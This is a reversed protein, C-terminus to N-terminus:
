AEFDGSPPRPVQDKLRHDIRVLRWLLNIANLTSVPTRPTPCPPSSALGGGGGGLICIGSGFIHCNILLPARTRHSVRSRCGQGRAHTRAAPPWNSPPLPPNRMSSEMGQHLSATILMILATHPEFLSDFTELEENQLGLYINRRISM